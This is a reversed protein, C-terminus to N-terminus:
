RRTKRRRKLGEPHATRETDVARRNAEALLSHPHGEGLCAKFSGSARRFLAAAHDLRGDDRELVALNNVTM